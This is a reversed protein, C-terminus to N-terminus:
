SDNRKNADTRYKSLVLKEGKNEPGRVWKQFMKRSGKDEGGSEDRGVKGYHYEQCARAGM